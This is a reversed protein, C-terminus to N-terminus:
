VIPAIRGSLSYSPRPLVDGFNVAWECTSGSTMGIQGNSM